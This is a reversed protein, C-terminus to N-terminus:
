GNKILKLENFNKLADMNKFEFILDDDKNIGILIANGESLENIIQDSQKKSYLLFAIDKQSLEFNGSVEFTKKAGLYLYELFENEYIDNDVLYKYNITTLIFKCYDRIKDRIIDDIVYNNSRKRGM